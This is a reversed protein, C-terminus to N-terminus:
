SPFPKVQVLSYNFHIESTTASIRLLLRPLRSLYGPYGPHRRPTAQTDGPHRRPTAQYIITCIRYMYLIIYSFILFYVCFIHFYTFVYLFIYVFIDFYIFYIPFYISTYSCIYFIYSYIPFKIAIYLIDLFDQFIM